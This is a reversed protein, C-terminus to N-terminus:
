RKRGTSAGVRWATGTKVNYPLCQLLMDEVKGLVASEMTIGHSPDYDEGEDQVVSFSICCKEMSGFIHVSAM